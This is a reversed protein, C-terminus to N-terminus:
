KNEEGMQKFTEALDIVYKGDGIKFILPEKKFLHVLDIQYKGPELIHISEFDLIVPREEEYSSGVIDFVDHEIQKKQDESLNTIVNKADEIHKKKIFFFLRAGCACGKLIEQAGDDYM